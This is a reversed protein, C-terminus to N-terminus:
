RAPHEEEQLRRGYGAGLGIPRDALLDEVAVNVVRDLGIPRGTKEEVVDHAVPPGEADVEGALLV